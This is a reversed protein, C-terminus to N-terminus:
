TCPMVSAPEGACAPISRGRTEEPYFGSQNGRVRPSLGMRARSGESVVGTGGCVRPYVSMALRGSRTRIPEGACAPISGTVFSRWSRSRPNGRVRPSLGNDFEAQLTSAATGGCVRPYVRCNPNCASPQSPEGACAPISGIEGARHLLRALNGRVRPSLGPWLNSAKITDM